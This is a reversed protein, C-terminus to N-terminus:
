NEVDIRKGCTTKTDGDLAVLAFRRMLVASAEELLSPKQRTNLNWVFRDYKTSDFRDLVQEASGGYQELGCGVHVEVFWDAATRLTAAAGKLANAEFGEIDVFVVDPRGYKQNLSDITIAEVM